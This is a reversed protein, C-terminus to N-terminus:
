SIAADIMVPPGCLYAKHGGRLRQEFYDAVAEHVYGTFGTWGDEEKPANLAPFIASTRITKSWNRLCNETTYNRLM